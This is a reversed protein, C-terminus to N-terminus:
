NQNPLGVRFVNTMKLLVCKAATATKMQNPETPIQSHQQLVSLRRLKHIEKPILYPNNLSCTKCTWRKGGKLSGTSVNNHPWVTEDEETTLPVAMWGWRPNFSWVGRKTWNISVFRSSMAVVIRRKTLGGPRWRLIYAYPQTVFSPWM